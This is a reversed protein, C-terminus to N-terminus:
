GLSGALIAVTLLFLVEVTILLRLLIGISEGMTHICGVMRKDAVPQVLAALFQYFVSSVGLQIVPTLGLLLLIVVSAAGLCNKILVASGLVMETVGNILNGIGPISEATRGIATRKLADVAPSILRQILQLGVIVGVMTKLIWLIGNKLLGTMRSLFEEGTLHNVLEMLIYIHIGPLLVSLILSESLFIIFIVMQYFIAATAAGSAATIALFYAPLLARMFEVIGALATRIQGSFEGFTKLLIVFLLLYVMYFAIEGIHKDQFIRTLNALVSSLIVLLLLHVCTDKQIGATSWLVRELIQGWTEQDLAREGAMMQRIMETISIDEELLQDVTEQIEELELDELIEEETDPVSEEEERDSTLETEEQAQITGARVADAPMIGATLLFAFVALVAARQLLIRAAGERNRDWFSM